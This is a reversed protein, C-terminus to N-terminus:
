FNICFCFCFTVNVFETVANTRQLANYGLANRLFYYVLICELPIRVSQPLIWRSTPTQGGGVWWVGVGRSWVSGAPWVGM